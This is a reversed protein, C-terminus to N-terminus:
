DLRAWFWGGDSCRCWVAGLEDDAAALEAGALAALGSGGCGTGISVGVVGGTGGDGEVVAASVGNSMWEYGGVSRRLSRACMRVWIAVVLSWREGEAVEDEDDEDPEECPCWCWYAGGSGGMSAGGIHCVRVVAERLATDVGAAVSVKWARLMGVMESSAYRRRISM